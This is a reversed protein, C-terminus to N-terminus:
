WRYIYFGVIKMDTDFTIRYIASVKEYTAKVQVVAMKMNRQHLEVMYWDDYSVLGGWDEGVQQKTGEITEETLYAKLETATYDNQLSKYDKNDVVNIIKQMQNEVVERTFIKSDDFDYTKPLYWYILALLLIIIGVVFVVLKLGKERRGRKQEAASFNANFDEAVEIPSGMRQYVQELSEGNERAIHIDSELEKRIEKKKQNSCKLKKIIAKIYKKSEM